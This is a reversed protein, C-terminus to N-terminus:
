HLFYYWGSWLYWMLIMKWNVFQHGEVISRDTVASYYVVTGKVCLYGLINVTRNHM